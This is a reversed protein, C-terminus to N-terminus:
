DTESKSVALYILKDDQFKVTIGVGLTYSGFNQRIEEESMGPNNKKAEELDKSSAKKEIEFSYILGDKRRLNPKGLIAIVEAPSQGLHLGSAVTLSKSVLKSPACQDSGHWDRGGAFLFYSYDVEGQEFILHVKEGAEPSVYCLQNRWESADGRQIEAAAGLKAKAKAFTDEGLDIGLIRFNSAAPERSQSKVAVDSDTFDFRSWWDSNDKYYASSNSQASAFLASLLLLGVLPPSHLRM